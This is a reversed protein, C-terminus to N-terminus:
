RPSESLSARSRLLREALAFDAPYTLKLNELHGRVLRPRGGCAEIASAEDTVGAGARDLAQQLPGSAFCRRPRPKGCARATSPIACVCAVTRM